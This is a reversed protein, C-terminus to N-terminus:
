GGVFAVIEGLLEVLEEPATETGDMTQVTHRRGDAVVTLRYAFRDCCPDDPLYAPELDFFGADDIHDFLEVTAARDLLEVVDTPPLVLSGDEILIWQETIGAIGGSRELALERLDATTTRPGSSDGCAALLLLMVVAALGGRPRM